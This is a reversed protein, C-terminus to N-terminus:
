YLGKPNAGVGWSRKPLGSFFSVIAFVMTTRLPKRGGEPYGGRAELALDMSVIVTGGRGSQQQHFKNQFRTGTGKLAFMEPAM